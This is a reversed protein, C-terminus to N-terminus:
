GILNAQEVARRAAPVLTYHWAKTSGQIQFFRDFQGPGPMVGIHPTSRIRRGFNGLVGNLQDSDRLKLKSVLQSTHLGQDGADYLARLLAQTLISLPPKRRLVRTLNVVEADADPSPAPSAEVQVSADLREILARIEDPTGDIGQLVILKELKVKRSWTRAQSGGFVTFPM